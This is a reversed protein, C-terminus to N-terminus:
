CWSTESRLRSRSNHYKHEIPAHDEQLDDQQVGSGDMPNLPDEQKDTRVEHNGKASGSPDRDVKEDRPLSGFLEGSQLNLMFNNPRDDEVRDGLNPSIPTDCQVPVLHVDVNGANNGGSSVQSGTLVVESNVLNFARTLDESSETVAM